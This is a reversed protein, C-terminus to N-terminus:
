DEECEGEGGGAADDLLGEGSEVGGLDGDIEELGAVLTLSGSSTGGSELGGPTGVRGVVREFVHDSVFAFKNFSSLCLALRFASYTWRKILAKWAPIIVASVLSVPDFFGCLTIEM